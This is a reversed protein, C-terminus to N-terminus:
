ILEWMRATRVEEDTVIVTTPDDPLRVIDGFWCSLTSMMEVFRGSVDHQWKPLWKPYADNYSPETGACLHNLRLKIEHRLRCCLPCVIRFTYAAEGVPLDCVACTIVVPM